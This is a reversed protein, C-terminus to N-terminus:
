VPVRNGSCSAHCKVKKQHPSGAIGQIPLVDLSGLLEVEHREWDEQDRRAGMMPIMSGGELQSAATDDSDSATLPAAVLPLQHVTTANLGAAM